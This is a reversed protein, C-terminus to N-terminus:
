SARKGAVWAVLREWPSPEYPAPDLPPEGETDLWAGVTVADFPEPEEEPPESESM